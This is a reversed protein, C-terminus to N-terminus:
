SDSWVPRAARTRFRAPPRDVGVGREDTAPEDRAVPEVKEDVVEGVVVPRRVCVSGIGGEVDETPTVGRDAREGCAAPPRSSDSSRYAM